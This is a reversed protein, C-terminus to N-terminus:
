DRYQGLWRSEETKINETLIEGQEKKTVITYANRVYEL